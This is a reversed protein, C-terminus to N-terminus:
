QGNGRSHIEFQDVNTQHPFYRSVSALAAATLPRSFSPATDVVVAQAGSASLAAGLEAGPEAGIGVFGFFTRNLDRRASLFAVEPADPGAWIASYRIAEDSPVLLRARPLTLWLRAPPEASVALSDPAGPIVEVLSFLVFLLALVAAPRQALPSRRSVAAALALALLPLVYVFYIPAAFPFQTLAMIGALPAFAALARTAVASDSPLRPWAVCFIVAGLPLMARAGDWIHTHLDPYFWALAALLTGLVATGAAMGRPWKSAALLVVLLPLGYAISAATPPDLAAAAARQGVVDRLSALLPTLAGRTALWGGYLAVPVVAGAVLLILRRALDADVGFGRVRGQRIERWAIGVVIAIPPVALQAVIDLSLLSSVLRLVLVAFCAAAVIVEIAGRREVDEAQRMAVLAWGAGALAFVATVKLLAAAGILAGAVFLARANRGPWRVLVAGAGCTLFLVYWSPMAVPYLPVSWTAVFAIILAAGVPRMWQSLLWFMGGLWVTSVLALHDRIANASVGGLRFVLAHLYALGGTYPDDFDRHPIEGRLVREASQGLTGEDHPYWGRLRFAWLVVLGLIIAAVVAAVDRKSQLYRTPVAPAATIPM